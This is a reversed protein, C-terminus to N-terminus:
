PTAPVGAPAAVTQELQEKVAGIDLNWKGRGTKYEDLRRTVTQYNLGKSACFARIDAAKLESRFNTRLAEIIQETTMAISRPM